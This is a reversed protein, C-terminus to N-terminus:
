SRNFPAGRWRCNNSLWRSLILSQTGRPCFNWENSLATTIVYERLSIHQFTCHCLSFFANAWWCFYVFKLTCHCMLWLLLATACSFFSFLLQKILASIAVTSSLIFSSTCNCLIQRLNLLNAFSNISCLQALVPPVGSPAIHSAKPFGGWELVSSNESFNWVAKSGGGM